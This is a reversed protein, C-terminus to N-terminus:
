TNNFLALFKEIFESKNKIEFGAAYKHGGGGFKKAIHLVDKNTQTRIEARNNYIVVIYDFKTGLQNDLIKIIYYTPVNNNEADVIVIKNNNIEYIKSRILVSDKIKSLYEYFRNLVSEHIKLIENITKGDYLIKAIEKFWVPYSRPYCYRIASILDRFKEEETSQIENSDIHDIFDLLNTEITLHESLVRSASKYPKVIIEVRSTKELDGWQHHDIWTAKKFYSSLYIAEQTACIDTIFVEESKANEKIAKILTNEIKRPGSFYVNIDTGFKKYLLYLCFIGDADWHTITIM